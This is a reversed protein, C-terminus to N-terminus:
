ALARRRHEENCVRLDVKHGHEAFWDARLMQWTRFEAMRADQRVKDDPFFGGGFDLVWDPWASPELVVAGTSPTRRRPHSKAVM